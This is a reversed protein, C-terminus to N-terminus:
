CMGHVHVNFNHEDQGATNSAICTYKGSDETRVWRILLISKEDVFQINPELFPDVFQGNKMWTITPKPNGGTICHIKTPQNM